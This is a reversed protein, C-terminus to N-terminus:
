WPATDIVNVGAKLYRHVVENCEEGDVTGFVNGFASAGLGIISWHRKGGHQEDDVNTELFTM